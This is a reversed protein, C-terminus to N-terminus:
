QGYYQITAATLAASIKMQYVDDQLLCEEAPNSLFGCEVLIAPRKVNKMLYISDSIRAAKRGNKRDLTVRLMEQTLVAWDFSNDRNAYFVQAGSFNSKPYINQHISILVGDATQNIQAVRNKLDSKKKERLTKADSDHLSVDDSRLMSTQIGYLHMLNDLKSAIQLNVTSEITGSRSVAGGDEGGHGADIVVTIGSMRTASFTNLADVACLSIMMVGLFVALSPTLFIMAKRIYAKMAAM